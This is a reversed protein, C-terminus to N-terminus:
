TGGGEHTTKRLRNAYERWCVGCEGSWLIGDHQVHPTEDHGEPFRRISEPNGAEGLQIEYDGVVFRGPASETVGMDLATAAAREDIYITKLPWDAAVVDDGFGAPLLPDHVPPAGAFPGALESVIEVGDHTFSMSDGAHRVMVGVNGSAWRQADNAASRARTAAMLANYREVAAKQSSRWALYLIVLNAATLAALAIM